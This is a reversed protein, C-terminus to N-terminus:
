APRRVAALAGRALEVAVWFLVMASVVHLAAFRQRAPVLRFDATMYQIYLLAVTIWALVKVGRTSRGLHAFLVALPSLWEFAHVFAAHRLFWGPGVFVGLGALLVQGLLAAAFLPAAVALAIRAWRVRAPLPESM